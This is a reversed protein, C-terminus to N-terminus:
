SDTGSWYFSELRDLEADPFATGEPDLKRASRRLRRLASRRKWDGLPRGDLRARDFDLFLFSPGERVLVNGLNLDPHRLGAAHIRRLSAALPAIAPAVRNERIWRSLPEAGGVEITVLWGKYSPGFGREVIAAVPEVVPLGRRWAALLTWFEHFPRPRFGFFTSGLWRMAGGRRYPRLVVRGRPTHVSATGGRGGAIPHQEVNPDLVWTVVERWGRRAICRRGRASFTVASEARWREEVEWLKAAHLIARYGALVSSEGGGSGASRRARFATWARRLPEWLFQRAGVTEGREFAVRSSETTEHNLASVIDSWSPQAM